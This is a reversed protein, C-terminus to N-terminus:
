KARKPTQFVLAQFMPDEWLPDFDTDVRALEYYYPENRVAEALYGLATMREGLLAYVCALDYYIVNPEGLDDRLRHSHVKRLLHKFDRAAESLKRLKLNALGSDKLLLLSDPYSVLGKKSARLQEEYFPIALDRSRMREGLLFCSDAYDHFAKLSAHGRNAVARLKELGRERRRHGPTTLGWWLRKAEAARADSTERDRVTLVAKRVAERIRSTTTHSPASGKYWIVQLHELMSPIRLGQPAVPIIPKGLALGQGVELMVNRNLGKLFAIVVNSLAIGREVQELWDGEQLQPYWFAVLRRYGAPITRRRLVRECYRKIPGDDPLSLFYTRPRTKPADICAKGAGSGQPM